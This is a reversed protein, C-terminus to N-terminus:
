SRNLAWLVMRGTGARGTWGRVYLVTASTYGPHHVHPYGPLASGPVGHRAGSVTNLWTCPGPGTNLRSEQNSVCNFALAAMSRAILGSVRSGVM